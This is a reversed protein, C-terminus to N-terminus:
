PRPGALRAAAEVVAARTSGAAGLVMRTVPRMAAPWLCLALIFLLLHAADLAEGATLDGDLAEAVAAVKVAYDATREAEDPVPRDGYALAEWQLLRVLQPNAQHYDYVAGAFARVDALVTPTM